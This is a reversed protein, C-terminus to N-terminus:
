VEETPGSGGAASDSRHGPGAAIAGAPPHGNGAPTTRLKRVAEVYRRVVCYTNIAENAEQRLRELEHKANQYGAALQTADAAEVARADERLAERNEESLRDFGEVEWWPRKTENENADM